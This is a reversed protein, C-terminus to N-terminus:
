FVVHSLGGTTTSAVMNMQVNPTPTTQWATIGHGTCNDLLVTGNATAAINLAQAMATAAAGNDVANLFHCGRFIAYRDIGNAGILVHSSAGGSSGLSAEFDCGEFTLRPSFNAIELTYNTANRSTTDLGFVCNRWTTEGNQSNFYFARSGTLNSSGTAVTADGFGLFEVNDYTNRGATDSWALLGTPTNPWGYFTGFNAFYCGGATVDVLKNFGVTGSVSLRARKGRKMPACLGILHTQSKNWVLSTTRHQTGTFFVVDNNGDTCQALAADLTGLPNSSTGPNGDNGSNENVFLYKGPFPMMGAVGFTRMGNSNISGFNTTQIDLGM